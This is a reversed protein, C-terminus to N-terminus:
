DLKLTQTFSWLALPHNPQQEVLLRNSYTM